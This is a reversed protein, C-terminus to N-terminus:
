TDVVSSTEITTTTGPAPPATSAGGFTFSQSADGANCAAQDLVNGATVTLCTGKESIPSFVPPGADGTFPFLQSNTVAGGGDARGGCSFMIVQNGAARRPDFNM